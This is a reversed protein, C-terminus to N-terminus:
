IIKGGVYARVIENVFDGSPKFFDFLVALDLLVPTVLSALKETDVSNYQPLVEGLKFRVKTVVENEHSKREIPIMIRSTSGVSLVRDKLGFHGISMAILAEPDVNLIKYLRAIRWIAETIRNTRTDIFIQGPRRKDEFLSGKYYFNGNRKLTWFDYMDDSEVEAEIGDNNKPKPYLEPSHLVAGIPWGFTHIQSTDFALLLENQQASLPSDVISAEIEMFSKVDKGPM